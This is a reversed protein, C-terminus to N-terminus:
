QKNSVRNISSLNMSWLFSLSVALCLWTIFMSHVLDGVVLSAFRGQKGLSFPAIVPLLLTITTLSLWDKVLLGLGGLFHGEAQFAFFAFALWLQRDFSALCELNTLLFFARSMLVLHPQAQVKTQKPQPYWRNKILRSWTTQQWM